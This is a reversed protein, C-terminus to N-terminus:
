SVSRIYHETIEGRQHNMLKSTEYCADRHNMGTERFETYKECAYEYRFSHCTGVQGTNQAAEKVAASFKDYDIKLAGNDELYNKLREALEASITKTDDIGNKMNTFRVSNGEIADMKINLTDGVRVGTERMIDCALAMKPGDTAHFSIYKVIADSNQFPARTIENDLASKGLDRYEEVVERFNYTKGIGVKEAGMDLANDLKNLSSCINEFSGYKLGDAIKSELFQGIHDPTIQYISKVKGGDEATCNEKVWRGAQVWDALKNQLDGFSHIGTRDAINEPTCPLGEAKIEEIARARDEVKSRGTMNIGSSKILEEMQFAMSGMKAM